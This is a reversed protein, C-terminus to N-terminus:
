IVAVDELMETLTAVTAPNPKFVSWTGRGNIAQLPKSIPSVPWLSVNESISSFTVLGFPSYHIAM